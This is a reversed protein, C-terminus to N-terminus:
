RVATASNGIYSSFLENLKAMGLRGRKEADERPEPEEPALLGFPVSGCNPYKNKVNYRSAIMNIREFLEGNPDLVSFIAHPTREIKRELRTINTSPNYTVEIILDSDFEQIFDYSDLLPDGYECAPTFRIDLRRNYDERETYSGRQSELFAGEDGIVFVRGKRGLEPQELYAMFVKDICDLGSFVGDISRDPNVREEFLMEAHEWMEYPVSSEREQISTGWTREHQWNAIKLYLAFRPDGRIASRLAKRLTNIYSQEGAGGHEPFPAQVRPNQYIIRGKRRIERRGNFLPHDDELIRFYQVGLAELDDHYDNEGVSAALSPQEVQEVERFPPRSKLGSGTSSPYRQEMEYLKRQLADMNKKIKLNNIFKECM